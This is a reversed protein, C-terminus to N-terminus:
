PIHGFCEIIESLWIRRASNPLSERDAPAINLCALEVKYSQM